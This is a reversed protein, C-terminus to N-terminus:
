MQFDHKGCTCIIDTQVSTQAFHSFSLCLTDDATPLRSFLGCITQSFKCQIHLISLSLTRIILLCSFLGMSIETVMVRNKWRRGEKKGDETFLLENYKRNQGAALLACLQLLFHMKKNKFDFFFFSFSFVPNVCWLSLLPPRAQKSRIALVFLHVFCEPQSYLFEVFIMLACSSLSYM